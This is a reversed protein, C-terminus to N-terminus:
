WSTQLEPFEKKSLGLDRFVSDDGALHTVRIEDENELKEMEELPTDKKDEKDEEQPKTAKSLDEDHSGILLFQANEFNLHKPDLPMWRLSRFEDLIRHSFSNAITCWNTLSKRKSKPLTRARQCTRIPLDEM